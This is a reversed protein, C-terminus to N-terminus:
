ESLEAQTLAPYSFILKLGVHFEKTGASGAVVSDPRTLFCLLWDVAREVREDFVRGSAVQELKFRCSGSKPLRTRFIRFPASV